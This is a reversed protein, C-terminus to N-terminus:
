SVLRMEFGKTVRRESLTLARCLRAALLGGAEEGAMTGDPGRDGGLQEETM